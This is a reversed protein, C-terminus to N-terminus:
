GQLGSAHYHPPRDKSIGGGVCSNLALVATVPRKCTKKKDGTIEIEGIYSSFGEATTTVRYRGGAVPPFRFDGQSDARTQAVVSEAKDLMRLEVDPVATGSPDIVRGCL